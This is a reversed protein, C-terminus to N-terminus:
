KFSETASAPPSGACAELSVESNARDLLPHDRSGRPPETAPRDEVSGSRKRKLSALARVTGVSKLRLKSRRRNLAQQSGRNPKLKRERLPPLDEGGQRAYLEQLDQPDEDLDQGPAVPTMVKVRPPWLRPLAGWIRALRAKAESSTSTVSARSACQACRCPDHGGRMRLKVSFGEAKLAEKVSCGVAIARYRGDPSGINVRLTPIGQHTEDGAYSDMLDQLVKKVAHLATQFGADFITRQIISPHRGSHIGASVFPPTRLDISDCSVVTEPTHVSPAPRVRPSSSSRARSTLTRLCGGGFGRLALSSVREPAVACAKRAVAATLATGTCAKLDRRLRADGSASTHKAGETAAREVADAAARATAPRLTEVQRRLAAAADAHRGWSRHADWDEPMAGLTADCPRANAAAADATARLLARVGNAGMGPLSYAGSLPSGAVGLVSSPIEQPGLPGRGIVSTRM